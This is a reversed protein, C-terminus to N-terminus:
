SWARRCPNGPEAEGQGPIDHALVAAGNPDLRFGALEGLHDDFQRDRQRGGNAVRLRREISPSGPRVPPSGLRTGKRRCSATMPARLLM